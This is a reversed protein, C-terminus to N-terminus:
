IITMRANNGLRMSTRRGAAAWAMFQSPFSSQIVSM